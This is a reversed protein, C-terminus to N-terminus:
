FRHPWKIKRLAFLLFQKQISEIRNIKDATYPNWVPSAYEVIPLIFTYFLKKLTWPDEFEYGFRKIWALRSKAKATIFEIHSNFNLQHDLIVGLDKILTVREIEECGIVYQFNVKLKGRHFSVFKTKSVNLKLHNQEFFAVLRNLDAQLEM